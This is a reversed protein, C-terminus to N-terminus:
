KNALRIVIKVAPICTLIELILINSKYATLGLGANYTEAGADYGEAEFTALSGGFDAFGAKVKNTTECFEHNWTLSIHPLLKWQEYNLTTEISAGLGTVFSNSDTGEVFLAASSGTETFSQQRNHSYQASVMPTVTFESLAIPYSGKLYAGYEDARYNGSATENLIPIDRTMSYDHNSYSIIADLYYNDTFYSGYLSLNLTDTDGDSAVDDYDIDSKSYGGSVGYLFNGSLYDRGISVGQTDTTFEFSDGADNKANLYIAKVWFSNLPSDPSQNAYLIPYYDTALGATFKNKGYANGKHHGGMRSTVNAHQASVNQKSAAMASAVPEPSLTDMAKNIAEPTALALIASIVPHTVGAAMANQIYTGQSIENATVPIAASQMVSLLDLSKLALWVQNATDYNTIFEFLASTSNVEAFEGDLTTASLIQKTWNDDFKEGQAMLPNVLLKGNTINADGTITFLDAGENNVDVILTGSGQTFDGTYNLAGISDKGAVGLTTSSALTIASTMTGNLYLEGENINIATAGTISGNLDWSGTGNKDITEFNKINGAFSRAETGELTFFDEDDGGNIAATFNLDGSNIFNDKICRTHIADDGNLTVITITGRNIITDVDNDGGM